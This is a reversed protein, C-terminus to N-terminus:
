CNLLYAITNIVYLNCCNVCYCRYETCVYHLEITMTAGDLIPLNFHLWIELHCCRWFLMCGFNGKKCHQPKIAVMPWTVIVWIWNSVTYKRIHALIYHSILPFNCTHANIILFRLDVLQMSLLAIPLRCISEVYKQFLQHFISARLAALVFHSTSPSEQLNM